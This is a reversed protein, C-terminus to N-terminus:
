RNIKSPHAIGRGNRGRIGAQGLPNPLTRCRAHPTGCPDPRNKRCRTLAKAGPGAQGLLIAGHAAPGHEQAADLGQHWELLAVIEGAMQHHKCRGVRMPGCEIHGPGRAHGTGHPTLCPRLRNSGAQLHQVLCQPGAHQLVPHQHVICGPGPKRLVIQIPQHVRHERFPATPQQGHRHGVRDLPRCEMVMCHWGDLLGDWAFPEPKCLRRLHKPHTLKQLCEIGMWLSGILGTGHLSRTDRREQNM